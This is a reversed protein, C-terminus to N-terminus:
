APVTVGPHVGAGLEAMVTVGLHVGAGLEAMVTVGPHVGAGLEPRCLSSAWAKGWMTVHPHAGLQLGLSELRTRKCAPKM